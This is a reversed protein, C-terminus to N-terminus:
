ARTDLHKSFTSKRHKCWTDIGQRDALEEMISRIGRHTGAQVSEMWRPVTRHLHALSGTKGDVNDYVFPIRRRLFTAVLLM